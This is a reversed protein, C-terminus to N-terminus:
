SKTSLMLVQFYTAKAAVIYNILCKWYWSKLAWTPVVTEAPNFKVPCIALAAAGTTCDTTCDTPVRSYLSLVVFIVPVLLKSCHCVPKLFGSNQPSNLLCKMSHIKYVILLFILLPCALSELTNTLHSGLDTVMETTYILLSIM